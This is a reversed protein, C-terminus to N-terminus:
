METGKVKVKARSYRDGVGRRKRSHKLVTELQKAVQSSDIWRVYQLETDWGSYLLLEETNGPVRDIDSKGVQRLM